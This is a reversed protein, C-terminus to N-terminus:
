MSVRYMRSGVVVVVAMVMLTKTGTGTKDFVVLVVVRHCPTFVEIVESGTGVCWNM